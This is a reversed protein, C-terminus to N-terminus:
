LRKPGVDGQWWSNAGLRYIVTQDGVEYVSFAEPVDIMSEGTIGDAARWTLRHYRRKNGVPWGTRRIGTVEVWQAIGERRAKVGRNALHGRWWFGGALVVACVWNIIRLVRATIRNEGVPFEVEIPSQDLYRLTIKDGVSLDDYLVATIPEVGMFTSGDAKFVRYRMRYGKRLGSSGTFAMDASLGLVDADTVIGKADLRDAQHTARQAIVTFFLFVALLVLLWAGGLALFLNVWSRPSTWGHKDDLDM